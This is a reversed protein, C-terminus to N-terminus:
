SYSVNIEKVGAWQLCRALPWLSSEHRMARLDDRSLHGTRIVVSGGGSPLNKREFLATTTMKSVHLVNPRHNTMLDFGNTIGTTCYHRLENAAGELSSLYVDAGVGVGGNGFNFHIVDFGAFARPPAVHVRRARRQASKLFRTLFCSLRQLFLTSSAYVPRFTSRFYIDDEMRLVFPLRNHVQWRLANLHSLTASVAGYSRMWGRETSPDFRVGSQRWFERFRTHNSGDLAGVWTLNMTMNMEKLYRQNRRFVRIREPARRLLISAMTVPPCSQLDVTSAALEAHVLKNFVGNTKGAHAQDLKSEYSFLREVDRCFSTSTNQHCQKLSQM